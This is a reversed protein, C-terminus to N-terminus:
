APFQHHKRRLARRVQGTSRPQQQARVHLKGKVVRYDNKHVLGCGCCAMYDGRWPVEVWDGGFQQTYARSPM